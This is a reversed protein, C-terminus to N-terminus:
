EKRGTHYVSGKGLLVLVCEMLSLEIIEEAKCYLISTRPVVSNLQHKEM